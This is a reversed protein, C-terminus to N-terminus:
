RGDGVLRFPAWFIPHALSSVAQAADDRYEGEDLMALMAQRMAEARSLMPHSALREFVDSMLSKASTTEVSWNSLLLARAGAHFFARGLGSFATAGRGESAATNCASLVVWDADLRLALVEGMTLLGDGGGGPTEVQGYWALDARELEVRTQRGRHESATM